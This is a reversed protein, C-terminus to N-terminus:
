FWPAGIIADLFVTALAFGVLALNREFTLQKILQNRQRTFKRMTPSQKTRM